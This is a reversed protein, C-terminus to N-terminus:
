WYFSELDGADPKFRICINNSLDDLEKMHENWIINKQLDYLFAAFYKSESIVFLSKRPIM